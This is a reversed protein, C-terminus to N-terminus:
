SPPRATALLHPGVGLLNPDSEVARLSDLLVQTEVPDALREDLDSLAFAIGEVNAVSEVRLGAAEIETRLEQPTHCYSTFGSEHLPPMRGTAEVDDVLALVEPYEVHTRAVLIGHLRAATRSIAAVHVIGDPRVVRAVEGLATLREAPTELHYLPGLLLVADVSDAELDLSCADGVASDVRSGHRARVQDVHHVVIDRHIVEYGHDILWDVYRGPGGGIDAIVAPPPPLTRGVIEVTRLFEVRGTGHALRDREEDRAYYAQLQRESVAVIM